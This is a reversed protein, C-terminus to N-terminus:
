ICFQIDRMVTRGLSSMKSVSTHLCLNFLMIRYQKENNTTM